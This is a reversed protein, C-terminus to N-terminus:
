WSVAIDGDVGSRRHQNAAVLEFEVHLRLKAEQNIARWGSQRGAVEIKWAAASDNGTFLIPTKDDGPGIAVSCGAHDHIPRPAQINADGPQITRQGVFPQDPVEVFVQFVVHLNTAFGCGEWQCKGFVM